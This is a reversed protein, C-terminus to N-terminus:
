PAVPVAFRVTTGAGYESEAWIRGGHREVISRSIALGLGTGGKQRADSSDVQAFPEFIADLMDAPIGRGADRVEFVVTGDQRQASATVLGGEDSFKVANGLLNTLTQMIQDEDVLARGECRGLEVRVGMPEALGEIQHVAARVLEFAEVAAIEMPRADSGMREIDLLDNILRTLRESSEVAVKVMSSARDGLDGVAGGALLGLSGRIATLPTRLEHSVVSLFEDKMREMERRQTVDRFVVVAGQPVDDKGAIVPSATVEVPFRAGGLRTYADEIGSVVAGTRIARDVYCEGGEREGAHAHEGHFSRHANRGLM